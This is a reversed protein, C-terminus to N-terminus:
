KIFLRDSEFYYEIQYAASLIELETELDKKIDLKGSFYINRLRKALHIDTDYIRSLKKVINGFNEDNLYIYGNKWSIYHRVDVKNSSIEKTRKNYDLKSSPKMFSGKGLRHIGTRNVSVEGEELVTQVLEDSPYSSVNFKTGHAVIDLNGTEVTFPSLENNAVEFYGEGALFVKRNQDKFFHPFIFETGSNLWIKTGDVLTIIAVKGYPVLLHNFPDKEGADYYFKSSNITFSQDEAYYNIIVTDGPISIEKGNSLLLQHFDLESVETTINFSSSLDTFFQNYFLTGSGVGILLLILAAYRLLQKRAKHRRKSEIKFRMDQIEADSLYGPSISLHHVLDFAEMIEDRKEPYESLVQDFLPDTTTGNAWKIFDLDTAFDIASYNLFRKM